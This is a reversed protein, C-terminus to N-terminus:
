SILRVALIVMVVALTLTAGRKRALHASYKDVDWEYTM